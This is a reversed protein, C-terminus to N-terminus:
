QVGTVIHSSYNQDGVRQDADSAEVQIFGVGLDQTELITAIWESQALRPANLNRDVNVTVVTTDTLPPTGQDSM